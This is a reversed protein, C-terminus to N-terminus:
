AASKTQNRKVRSVVRTKATHSQNAATRIAIKNLPSALTLPGAKDYEFVKAPNLM